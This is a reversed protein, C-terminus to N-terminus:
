ECVPPQCTGSVYDCTGSLCEADNDCPLDDAKRDACRSTADCWLGTACVNPSDSGQPCVTGAAGNGWPQCTGDICSLRSMPNCFPASVGDVSCAAGATVALAVAACTGDVCLEGEPCLRSSTCPSGSPLPAVCANQGVDGYGCVLGAACTPLTAADTLVDCTEGLQATTRSVVVCLGDLCAALESGVRCRYDPCAEGIGPLAKCVGDCDGGQNGDCFGGACEDDVRCAGGPAVTGAFAARCDPVADLSVDCTARATALCRSFAAGDFTIRGAAVLAERSTAPDGAVISGIYDRCAAPGAAAALWAYIRTETQASTADCSALIDCFTAAMEEDIRSPSTVGSSGGGDDGCAALLPVAALLGFLLSTVHRM